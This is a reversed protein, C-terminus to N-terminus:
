RLDERCMSCGPIAVGERIERMVPFSRARRRGRWSSFEWVLTVSAVGLMVGYLFSVVWKVYEAENEAPYTETGVVPELWVEGTPLPTLEVEISQIMGRERSEDEDFELRLTEKGM